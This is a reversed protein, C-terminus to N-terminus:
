KNNLVSDIAAGDYLYDGEDYEYDECYEEYYEEDIYESDYESHIFDELEEYELSSKKILLYKGSFFFTYVSAFLAVVLLVIIACLAGLMKENRIDQINEKTEIPEKTEEKKM